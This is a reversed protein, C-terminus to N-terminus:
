FSARDRFLTLTRSPMMPGSVSQDRTIQGVKKAGREVKGIEAQAQDLTIEGAHFRALIAKRVELSDAVRGNAEAKRMHDLRHRYELIEM